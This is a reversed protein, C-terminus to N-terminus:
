VSEAEVPHEIARLMALVHEEEGDLRQPYVGVGLIYDDGNRYKTVHVYVDIEQGQITATGSFKTVRTETGQVTINQASVRELDNLDSYQQQVFQVLRENSFQGIPNLTQGAVDAAPTSVVTFLGVDTEGLAGVEMSKTYPTVYNTAEVRREQGAVEVTRNFALPQTGNTTYGADQATSDAVAAPEATLTLPEDGTVFGLCGSMLLLLALAVTALTRRDSFM